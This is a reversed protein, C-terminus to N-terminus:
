KTNSMRSIRFNSSIIRVHHTVKLYFTFKKIAHVLQHQIYYKIIANEEIRSLGIIIIVIILFVFVLSNLSEQHKDRIFQERTNLGPVHYM